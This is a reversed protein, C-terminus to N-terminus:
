KRGTRSSYPARTRRPQSCLIETFLEDEDTGWFSLRPPSPLESPCYAAKRAETLLIAFSLSKDAVLSRLRGAAANVMRYTFKPLLDHLERGSLGDESGRCAGILTIWAHLPLRSGELITGVKVSFRRRCVKCWRASVAERGCRPCAPGDPWRLCALAEEALEENM